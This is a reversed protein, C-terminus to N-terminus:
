SLSFLWSVCHFSFRLFLSLHGIICRDYPMEAAFFFAAIYFLNDTGTLFSVCLVLISSWEGELLYGLENESESEGAFLLLIAPSQSILLKGIFLHSM